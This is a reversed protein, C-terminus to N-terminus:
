MVAPKENEQMEKSKRSTEMQEIFEKAASLSQCDPTQSYYMKVAEIRKGHALLYEVSIEDSVEKTIGTLVKLALNISEEEFPNIEVGTICEYATAVGINTVLNGAKTEFYRTKYYDTM